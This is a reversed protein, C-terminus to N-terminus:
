TSRCENLRSRPSKRVSPKMRFQDVIEDSSKESTPLVSCVQVSAIEQQLSDMVREGLDTLIPQYLEVSGFQRWTLKGFDFEASIWSFCKSILGYQDRFITTERSNALEQLSPLDDLINDFYILDYIDLLPLDSVRLIVKLSTLSSARRIGQSLIQHEDIINSSWDITLSLQSLRPLRGLAHRILHAHTRLPKLDLRRLSDLRYPDDLLDPIHRNLAYDIVLTDLWIPRALTYIRRNIATTRVHTKDSNRGSSAARQV